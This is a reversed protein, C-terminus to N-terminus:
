QLAKIVMKEINSKPVAGVIQDIVKGNKFLLLTPIGMINYKTPTRPNEDTNLRGFKIRDSYQESLAKFAPEIMRCPVCWEAWFDVLVPKDSSLVEKDFNDDTVITMNESM